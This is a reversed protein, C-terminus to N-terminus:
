QGREIRKPKVKMDGTIVNEDEVDVLVSNSQKNKDLYLM